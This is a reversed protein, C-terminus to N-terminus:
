PQLTRAAPKRPTDGCGGVEGQTLQLKADVTDPDAAHRQPSKELRRDDLRSILPPNALLCTM